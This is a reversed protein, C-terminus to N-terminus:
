NKKKLCFVAYSIRMLSQLESTQEESRQRWQGPLQCIGEGEDPALRQCHRPTDGGVGACFREFGGGTGTSDIKPTKNGTAEAFKEGAATAFPYVTSSGVANIYDRAGGGSSAQDQCASLALTCTAAGAILAFTKAM